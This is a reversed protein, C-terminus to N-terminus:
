ECVPDAEPLQVGFDSLLTSSEFQIQMKAIQLDFLTQHYALEAQLLRQQSDLLEDFGVADAKFAAQRAQIASTAAALRNTQIEIGSQHNDFLRFATGLDHVIRKKQETLIAKERSLRLEANRVGSYAQRFGIPLDYVMGLEWEGHDNTFADGLASSFRGGGGTLDDGFGNNRYTAVADLRPLLFNKSALLELERRKVRFRQERLEVRNSVAMHALSDWDYITPAHTPVDTPRLLLGDSQPLGLLRRLNAEAQLIGTRNNFSDGNLATQLESQFQFYQERAQAERDAEGGALRQTNRAKTVNWTTLGLDRVTKASEFNKYALNLRWYADTVERVLNRVGTEFQAVSVKHNIHSIIFGNGFNFGPQTTPGAIRNFDTGRGQLLPQRVTGEWVTTWAHPFQLSPNNSQTHQVSNQISFQTGFANTKTLGFSGTAVDERVEALATGGALVPNNFVDDNKAYLLSSNFRADFQALAADVGFNPDSSLIAPDFGGQTGEPTAIIAAGLSRLVDTDSMAMQIAQDLTLDWFDNPMESLSTIPRAYLDSEFAETATDDVVADYGFSSANQITSSTNPTSTAYRVKNSRCGPQTFLSALMCGAMVLRFSTNALFRTPQFRVSM